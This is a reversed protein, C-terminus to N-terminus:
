QNLKVVCLGVSYQGPSLMAKSVRVKVAKVSMVMRIAGPIWASSTEGVIVTPV